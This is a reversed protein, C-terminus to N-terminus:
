ACLPYIIKIPQIYCTFHCAQITHNGLAHLLRPSLLMCEQNVNSADVISYSTVPKTGISMHKCKNFNFRLLWDGAWKALFNLDPQLRYSDAIERITAYIKMDDAFMSISCGVHYLLPRM